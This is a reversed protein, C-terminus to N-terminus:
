VRISSSLVSSEFPAIKSQRVFDDPNFIWDYQGGGVPKNRMIWHFVSLHDIKSPRDLTRLRQDNFLLTDTLTM